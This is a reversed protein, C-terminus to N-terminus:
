KPPLAYKSDGLVPIHQHDNAVTNLIQNAAAGGEFFHLGRSDSCVIVLAEAGSGSRPCRIHEHLRDVRTQLFSPCARKTGGSLKPIEARNSLPPRGPHPAVRDAFATRSNQGSRLATSRLFDFPM